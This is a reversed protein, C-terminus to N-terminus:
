AKVKSRKKSPVPFYEDALSQTDGTLQSVLSNVHARVVDLPVGDPNESALKDIARLQQLVQFLTNNVVESLNVGYTKALPKIAEAIDSDINYSRLIKSM